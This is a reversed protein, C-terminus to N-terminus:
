VTEIEKTKVGALHNVEENYKKTLENIDKECRFKDDETASGAKVEELLNQWQKQRLNRLAVKAEEAQMNIMKALDSRRDATLPPISVRVVNGDNTPELGKGSDRVAKEVEGLQNKDWPQIVILSGEPVSINAMQKLPTPTGYYSAKIGEVLASTARGTRMKAYEEQLRGVIQKMEEELSRLNYPM